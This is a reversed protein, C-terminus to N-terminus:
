PWIWGNAATAPQAKLFFARHAPLPLTASVGSLAASERATWYPAPSRQILWFAEYSSAGPQTDARWLQLLDAAAVSAGATFGNEATLGLTVPTADVPWPLALLNQGPNLSRRWSTTRVHGTLTAARAPGTTKVMLGTGPPIIRGYPSAAGVSSVWQGGGDRWHKQWVGNELFLIQDAAAATAASKLLGAPFVQALTVHPRLVVRAGQLDEPLAKLTSHVSDLDFAALGTSVGGVELRHGVHAGDLVELYCPTEGTVQIAAANELAVEAAGLLQEIRGAYIPANVLSVGLTQAGEALSFRQWAQPTTVASLGDRHTVRLRLVGRELRQGGLSTVGSWTIRERGGGADAKTPALTLPSWDVLDTSHELRFDVDTIDRPHDLHADVRGEPTATLWWGGDFSSGSGIAYEVLDNVGDADFDTEAVTKSTVSGEVPASGLTNNQTNAGAPATAAQVIRVNDFSSTGLALPESSTVALGIQVTGSLGALTVTEILTWASGNASAYATISDGSRVLRVWNNPAANVAPGGAYSSAGNAVPRWVMGFGNNEAAPTTFVTAHRSGATLAERIMVGTKAWPNSNSQSTIRARIEGDGALQTYAFRFGDAAFFIDAGSGRLTYTDTPSSYSM